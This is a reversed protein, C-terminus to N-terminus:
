SEDERQPDPFGGDPGLMSGHDREFQMASASKTPRERHANAHLDVECIRVREGGHVVSLVNRGAEDRELLHRTIEIKQHSLGLPVEYHVGDVSIIHDASVTREFSVVFHRRLSHEDVPRLSRQEPDHFRQHPTQKAPLRAHPRHNYVQFLDHRLRLELAGLDPDVDPARLSRLIRAIATRNFREIKGRGAPYAIEGHVLAIKLSACVRAVANATFASGHDLYVCDVRGYRRLVDHLGHIVVDAQESTAVSVHLGMRTCDDLFYIAVRKYGSAGARFHKGDVLIVQLRQAHEFRRQDRAKPQRLRKTQVGDRRMARWLTTRDIHQEPAIVGRLRAREILEPISALTDPPLDKAQCGARQEAVFDLLARPLVTSGRELRRDARRLGAIADREFARLYRWITRETLRRGGKGDEHRLDAVRRVADTKGFGQATLAEVASVIRFRFLAEDDIEIVM